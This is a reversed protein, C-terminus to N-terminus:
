KSLIVKGFTSIGDIRLLVIYVGSDFGSLDMNARVKGKTQKKRFVDAMLRGSLDFIHVSVEANNPLVYEITIHGTSPNPFVLVPIKQNLDIEVIDNPWYAGGGGNETKLISLGSGGVYGVNSNLIHLARLHNSTGSYQRHLTDGGYKSFLVIGNDGCAYVSDGNITQVRNLPTTIGSSLQIVTDASKQKDLKLFTGQAGVAYGLDESFMDVDYISANTPSNLSTILDGGNRIELVTGNSGVAYGRNISVFDLSYLNELNHPAPVQLAEWSQGYDASKLLTGDEGCTFVFNQDVTAVAYLDKNTGTSIIGWDSDPNKGHMMGNYGCIYTYDGSIAIDTIFHRITDATITDWSIGNETKLLVPIDLFFDGGVAYGVNYDSGQSPEEFKIAQLSYHMAGSINKWACADDKFITGSEGVLVPRFCSTDVEYLDLRTFTLNTLSDFSSWNNGGNLTKMIRGNRGSIMGITDDLFHIGRLDDAVNPFTVNIWTDGGNATKWIKGKKGIAYGVTESPFHLNYFYVSDNLIKESWNLGGNTSRLVSGSDTVIFGTTENVFQIANLERFTTASLTICTDELIRLITGKHGVAYATTEDAFDVDNLKLHTFSSKQLWITSNVDNEFLIGNNGVIYGKGSNNFAIGYLHEDTISDNKTWSAGNDQSKLIVGYDGVAYLADLEEFTRTLDNITNGQPIPHQWYYQAMCVSGYLFLSITLITLKKM